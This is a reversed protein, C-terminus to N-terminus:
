AQTEKFCRVALLQAVSLTKSLQVEAKAAAAQCAQATLGEGLDLRKLEGSPYLLLAALLFSSM